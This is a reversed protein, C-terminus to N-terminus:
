NLLGVEGKAVKPGSERLGQESAEGSRLPRSQQTSKHQHRELHTRNM